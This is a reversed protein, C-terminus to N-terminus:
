DMKAIVEDGFRRIADLQTALDSSDVEMGWPVLGAHTCGIDRLRGFDDLTRASFDIGHIQFDARHATGHEARLANLEGILKKM